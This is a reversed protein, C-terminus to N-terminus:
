HGRSEGTTGVGAGEVNEQSQTHTGAGAGSAAVGADFRGFRKTAFERAERVKDRAIRLGIVENRIDPIDEVNTRKGDRKSSGM